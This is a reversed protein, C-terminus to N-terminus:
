VREVNGCKPCTIKQGASTFTSPGRLPEECKACTRTSGFAGTAGQVGTSLYPGSPGLVGTVVSPSIVTRGVTLDSAKFSVPITAAEALDSESFGSIYRLGEQAKISVPFPKRLDAREKELQALGKKIQDKGEGTATELQKRMNASQDDIEKMKESVLANVAAQHQSMAEKAVAELLRKYEGGQRFIIVAALIALVAFLTGLTAILAGYPSWWLSLQQNTKELVLRYASDMSAITQAKISAPLM